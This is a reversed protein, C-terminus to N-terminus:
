TKDPHNVATYFNPVRARCEAVFDQYQSTPFDIPMARQFARLVDDFTINPNANRDHVHIQAMLDAMRLMAQDPDNKWLWAFVDGAADDVVTVGLRATDHIIHDAARAAFASLLRSRVRPPVDAAPSMLVAEAQRHAGVYVRERRESRVLRLYGALQARFNSVSVVEDVM